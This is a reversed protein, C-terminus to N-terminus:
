IRSVDNLVFAQAIIRIFDQAKLPYAPPHTAGNAQGSHSEVNFVVFIFATDLVNLDVLPERTSDRPCELIASQVPCGPFM